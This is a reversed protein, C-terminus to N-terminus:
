NEANKRVGDHHFIKVASARLAIGIIKSSRPDANQVLSVMSIFWLEDSNSGINAFFEASRDGV